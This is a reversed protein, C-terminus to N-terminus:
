AIIKMYNLLVLVIVTVNIKSPINIVLNTISFRFKSGKRVFNLGFHFKMSRFISAFIEIYASIDM